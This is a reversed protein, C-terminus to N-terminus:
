GNVEIEAEDIMEQTIRVSALEYAVTTQGMAVIESTYSSPKRPVVTSYIYETLDPYEAYHHMKYSDANLIFNSNKISELSM